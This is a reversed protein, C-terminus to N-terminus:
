TEQVKQKRLQRLERAPASRYARRWTPGHYRRCAAAYDCYDCYGDPVIVFQGAQIGNLLRALTQRIQPGAPGQWASAEFTARDVSQDWGPALFLFEVREPGLSRVPGALVDPGKLRAYLPPQVRQGRVAAQLLNRDEGKMDRGQKFKYDVIRWGPPQRREDVRDLRGRIHVPKFQLGLDDLSGSAEVEFAVPRFGGALCNERDQAVLVAVLGAVSEQALEWLLPYGTGQRAAIAAFVDQVASRVLTQEGDQSLGGEPWGSERLRVYVLNLAAHCLEGLMQASLVGPEIPRISELGLVQDSFYQFPCRAYQELPTPAIGRAALRTWYGELPGAFGDYSGAEEGEIGRLAVLSNRFLDADRGTAALFSTVDLGEGAQYLAWETRTLLTPLFPATGARAALRRPVHLVPDSLGGEDPEAIGEQVFPSPALVRGEADARQYLLYLRERAAQRLLAMLLQEEDYGALKEDIKYGLTEALARRDRDRLFADERIVRPFIKENLGIVFLARFSLGRAAMADMVTVGQCRDDTTPLTTREMAGAFTRAWEEWSVVVGLRDLQRLQALVPEVASMVRGRDPDQEGTKPGSLNVHQEVLSAFAGTLEAFGGREPLARCHRILRAVLTWLINAQGDGEGGRGDETQTVALRKWDEEGRMIGAEGALRKWCDPRPEGVGDSEPEPGVRYFPSTLLDLVAQRTFGSVPLWALQLLVKALPERTVSTGGTANFPIRHEDFLRRLSVQYPTLTRAVLGIEDFRYGHTEVLNLMEKCVTTLEDEVGVTSLVHVPCAPRRAAADAGAAERSIETASLHRDLFRRAFAFGQHRGQPFYLTAAVHATVAEFFSLQVQTLDYFGYYCARRLGSLFPSRAVWPCVAATLDDATGVGLARGSELMAAQLTFLARLMPREEAEFLGESLARLAVAPEVAADQLDRVTAWLAAVAGPTSGARALPELEPLERKLIHSLLQECFFDQVIELQPSVTGPEAAARWEGALRLALQYFTLFHVNLLPLGSEVVLLRRLYTVLSSSPVILALSALPDAAKLRRVEEVLALELDPAFPGTVIRLM